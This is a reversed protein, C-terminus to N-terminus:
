AKTKDADVFAWIKVNTFQPDNQMMGKFTEIMEAITFETDPWEFSIIYRVLPETKVIQKIPM